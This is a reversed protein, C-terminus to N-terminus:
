DELAPEGFGRRLEREVSAIDDESASVLTTPRRVPQTPVGRRLSAVGAHAGNFVIVVRADGTHGQPVHAYDAALEALARWGQKVRVVLEEVYIETSPDCFVAAVAGSWYAAVTWGSGLERAAPWMRVGDQHIAHAVSYALRPDAQLSRHVLETFRALFRQSFLVANRDGAGRVPCLGIAIQVAQPSFTGPEHALRQAAQLAADEAGHRVADGEALMAALTQQDTVPVTAGSVRVYVVGGATMCPKAAVWDVAVVAAERGDPRDFAKVDHTPVPRAGGAAAITTSLWTAPEEGRFDVGPLTWRGQEDREAGVILYGGIANAFGCASKRVTDPRPREGGGKAEWTLGEDGARALFREVADADLSEWSVDFLSPPM